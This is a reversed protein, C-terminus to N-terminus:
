AVSPQDGPRAEALPIRLTWPGRVQVEPSGLTVEDVQATADPVTVYPREGICHTIGMGITGRPDGGPVVVSGLYLLQRVADPDRPTCDIRIEGRETVRSAVVHASCGVVSVDAEGPVPVRVIEDTREQMWLDDIEIVVIAGGLPPFTVVERHRGAIPDVFSWGAEVYQRGADDRLILRRHPLPGSLPASSTGIGDIRRRAPRADDVPDHRDFYAELEISTGAEYRALMRAAVTIGHRTDKVDLAQARAGIFGEPEVPITVSWDGTEGSLGLVIAGVDHALADLLTTYGLKATGDAARTLFGGVQWRPRPTSIDRGHDDHIRVTGEFRRGAPEVEIQIGTVNFQLRIGDRDPTIAATLTRSDQAAVVNARTGKAHVSRFGVRPVFVLHDPTEGTTANSGRDETM